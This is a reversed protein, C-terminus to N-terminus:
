DENDSVDLPADVAKEIGGEEVVGSEWGLEITNLELVFPREEAGELLLRGCRRLGMCRCSM